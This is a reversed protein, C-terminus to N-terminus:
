CSWRRAGGARGRAPARGARLRALGSPDKAARDLVRWGTPTSAVPGFLGASGGAGGPRVPLRRRRRAAGGSGAARGRGSAAPPPRGGPALWARRDARAPRGAGAAAGGRCARGRRHRRHHSRLQVRLQYGAGALHGGQAPVAVKLCGCEGAQSSEKRMLLCGGGVRWTPDAPPASATEAHQVRCWIGGAAVEIRAHPEGACPEGVGNVAPM